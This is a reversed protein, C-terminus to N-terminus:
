ENANDTNKADDTESVKTKNSNIFYNTNLFEELTTLKMFGMKRALENGNCDVIICTPMCTIGYTRGLISCKEPCIEIILIDKEPEYKQIERDLAFCPQCTEGYFKLLANTKKEALIKHLDEYTEVKRIDKM